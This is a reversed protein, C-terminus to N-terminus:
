EPWGTYKSFKFAVKAADSMGFPNAAENAASAIPLTLNCTVALGGVKVPEVAPVPSLFKRAPLAVAAAVGAGLAGRLLWRRGVDSDHRVGSSQSSQEPEM